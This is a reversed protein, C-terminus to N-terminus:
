QAKSKRLSKLHQVNKKMHKNAMQTDENTFHRKLDETCKTTLIQQQSNQSNKKCYIRSVLRRHNAFIKDWETAERKM